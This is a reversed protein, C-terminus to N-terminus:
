WGDKEESVREIMRFLFIFLDGKLPLYALNAAEEKSYASKRHLKTKIIAHGMEEERETM